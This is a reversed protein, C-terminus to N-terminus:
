RREQAIVQIVEDPASAVLAAPIRMITYGMRQLYKDRIQDRDVRAKHYPGDVEVVLNGVLFDVRYKGIARQFTFAIGAKKLRDYLILESQSDEHREGGMEKWIGLRKVLAGAKPVAPRVAKFNQKQRQTIINRVTRDVMVQSAGEDILRQIMPAMEEALKHTIGSTNKSTSIEM